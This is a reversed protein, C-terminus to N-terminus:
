CAGPGDRRKKPKEGTGGVRIEADPVASGALTVAIRGSFTGAAAPHFLVDFTASGGPPIPGFYGNVVEFAPDDAAVSGIALAVPSTNTVTFSQRPATTGVDVKGFKVSAPEVAIAQKVVVAALDIAIPPVLADAASITVTAAFTGATL